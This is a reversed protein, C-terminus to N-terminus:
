FGELVLVYTGEDDIRTLIQSSQDALAFAEYENFTLTEV